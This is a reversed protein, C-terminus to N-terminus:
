EFSKMETLNGFLMKSFNISPSATTLTVGMVVVLGFSFTILAGCGKDL